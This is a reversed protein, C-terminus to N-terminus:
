AVQSPKSFYDKLFGVLGGSSNRYLQLVTGNKARNKNFDLNKGTLYILPRTGTPTKGTSGIDCPAWISASSPNGVGTDSNHFKYRNAAVSWDIFQGPAIWLETVGGRFGQGEDPQFGKSKGPSYDAAWYWQDPNCHLDGCGVGDCLFTLNADAYFNPPVACSLYGVLMPGYPLPKNGNAQTPYRSQAGMNTMGYDVICSQLLSLGGTIVPGIGSGIPDGAPQPLTAGYVNTVFIRGGALRIRDPKGGINWFHDSGGDDTYDAASFPIVPAGTETSITQNTVIETDNIWMTAVYNSGSKQISLMIHCWGQMEDIPSTFVQPGKQYNLGVFQHGSPNALKTDVDFVGQGTTNTPSVSFYQTDSSPNGSQDTVSQVSTSSGYLLGNDGPGDDEGVGAHDHWMNYWFSMAFSTSDSAKPLGYLASHGDFWVALESNFGLNHAGSPGRTILTGPAVTARGPISPTIDAGEIPTSITSSGSIGFSAAKEGCKLLSFRNGPSSDVYWAELLASM